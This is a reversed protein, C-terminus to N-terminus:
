VSLGVSIVGGEARSVGFGSDLKLIFICAKAFYVAGCPASVAM